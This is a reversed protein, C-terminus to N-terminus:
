ILRPKRPVRLSASFASRWSHLSLSAPRWQPVSSLKAATSSAQYALRTEEGGPRRGRGLAVPAQQVKVDQRRESRLARWPAAM